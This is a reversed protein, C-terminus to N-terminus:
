RAPTIKLVEAREFEVDGLDPVGETVLQLATLHCCLVELIIHLTWQQM